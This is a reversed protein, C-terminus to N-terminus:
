FKYELMIKAQKIPEGRRNEITKGAMGSLEMRASLKRKFGINARWHYRGTDNELTDSGLEAGVKFESSFVYWALTSFLIKDEDRGFLRAYTIEAGLNVAGFQKSVMLPLEMQRVGDGLGREDDGTPFKLTPKIGIAPRWGGLDDQAWRWKVAVETDRVGDHRSGDRNDIQGYGAEISAEVDASVPMKLEVNPIVLTRRSDSDRWALSSEIAYVKTINPAGTEFLGSHAPTSIALLLAAACKRYRYLM